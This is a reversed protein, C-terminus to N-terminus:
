RAEVAFQEEPSLVLRHRRYFAFYALGILYWAAAAIAAWRYLPDFFQYALTVICILITAYAGVKGLPSVFPRTIGAFRSRLRLFAISQLIYSVMGAFVIMSVLFGGMFAINGSGGLYWVVLLMFLAMAAGTALAMNPTKTREATVSLRTPLYGARSLSYINRGSAFSGAFFSAALGLVAVSALLKAWSDGFITRFGDLLPEGSSGMAHAGQPISASFFLVGLALAILTLISLVLARPMDRTPNKSEEATLPLQEVALFMYVGFPLALMVGTLGFPFWMGNGGELKVAAGSADIGINLAYRAFDVHPIAVVFFFLLVAIAAVTVYIVVRMSLELGRLSLLLMIAYGGIWWLPLASPPTGFIAALYLSMFFMNAAPALVFEINEALGTTFGGWPGMATRAFSYAGGTHPLAASMEGISCCLCIYMFGIILTALLMGGFGGQALGINWGSYEGAVVAGVGMMWLAFLGAHRQLQRQEFYEKGVKQYTVGSTQGEAM